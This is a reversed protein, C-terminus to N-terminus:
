EGKNCVIACILIGFLITIKDLTIETEGFRESLGIIGSLWFMTGIIWFAIKM